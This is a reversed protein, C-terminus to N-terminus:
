KKYRTIKEIEEFPVVLLIGINEDALSLTKGKKDATYRITIDSPQCSFPTGTAGKVKKIIM